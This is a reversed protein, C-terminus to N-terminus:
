LGCDESLVGRELGYRSSIKRGDGIAQDKSCPLDLLQSDTAAFSIVKSRLSLIVYVYRM